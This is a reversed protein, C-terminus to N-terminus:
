RGGGFSGDGGSGPRKSEMFARSGQKGHLPSSAQARSNFSEEMMEGEYFTPPGHMYGGYANQSAEEYRDFDADEVYSQLVALIRKLLEVDTHRIYGPRAVRRERNHVRLATTGLDLALIFLVMSIVTYRAM